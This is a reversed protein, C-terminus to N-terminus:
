GNVRAVLIREIGNLDKKFALSAYEKRGAWKKSIKKSQGKGIEMLLWGGPTLRKPAEKLIEQVLRLGEPGGDLALRPESKVERSLRSLDSSPIYPPNSVIVDWFAKKKGFRKFLVSEVTKIKQHLGLSDFNKRAIALAKKSADLATMRCAPWELTLSAAICGTGTGLDLIEPKKGEYNAGLVHLVEEVLRETEPRPILVDASVSFLRGLFPSTGTIHGLPIGRGRKAVARTIAIKATYSLQRTGAYIDIRKMRGYHSMMQEAEARPSLAGAERLQKRLTELYLLNASM